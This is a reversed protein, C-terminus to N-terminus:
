SVTLTSGSVTVTKPTLGTPAPGSVPDGTTIDFHSQHCPCVIQNGEFSAVTCGQHPCIADFAKFTGASPQTVVTKTDAFIKGSGVPIESTPIGGPAASSAGGAQTGSAAGAASSSPSPAEPVPPSSCAALAGAGAVVVAARLVGRRDTLQAIRESIHATPETTRSHTRETM